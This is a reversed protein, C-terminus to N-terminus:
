IFQRIVRDGLHQFDSKVFERLKSKESEDVSIWWYKLQGIMWDSQLCIERVSEQQVPMDKTILTRHLDHDFTPCHGIRSLLELEECSPSLFVSGIAALAVDRDMETFEMLVDQQKNSFLKTIGDIAGKQFWSTSEQYQTMESTNEKFVPEVLGDSRALYTVTSGHPASHLQELLAVAQHLEPQARFSLFDSAFCSEMVGAAYRNGTAAPWLGYYFGFLEKSGGNATLLRRLSRQMSGHWGMDVMANRGPKFMGEQRLYMICSEYRILLKKYVLGSHSQLLNQFFRVKEPCLLIEDLSGFLAIADSVIQNSDLLDVRLLAERVTTSNLSSSLFDLLSQSLESESSNLIGEAINLSARSVYLYHVETKLLKSYGAAEWAQKMLYGDRACFYLRDINHLTVRSALWRVFSSLVITGLTGGLTYWAESRDIIKDPDRRSDLVARRKLMSFPLLAPNLKAGVRRESKARRYELTNVGYEKPNLVDSHVDDGIHLLRNLSYDVSLARWINGTAKTSGLESSVYIGSWGKYGARILIDALYDRPLYM